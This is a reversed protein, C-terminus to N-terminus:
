GFCLEKQDIMSGLAEECMHKCPTTQENWFMELQSILVYRNILCYLITMSRLVMRTQFYLFDWVKNHEIIWCFHIGLSWDEDWYNCFATYLILNTNQRNEQTDGRWCSTQQSQDEKPDHCITFTFSYPVIMFNQNYRMCAQGVRAGAIARPCHIIM